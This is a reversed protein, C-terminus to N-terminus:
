KPQDAEKKKLEDFKERVDKAIEDGSKGNKNGDVIPRALAGSGIAAGVEAGSREIEKIEDIQDKPVVGTIEKGKRLVGTIENGSRLLLKGAVGNGDIDYESLVRKGAVFYERSDIVWSVGSRKEWIECVVNTRSTNAAVGFVFTIRRDRLVVTKTPLKSDEAGAAPAACVLVAGLCLIRKM